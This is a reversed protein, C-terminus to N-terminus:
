KNFANKFREKRLQKFRESVNREYRIYMATLLALIIFLGWFIPNKVVKKYLNNPATLCGQPSTSQKPPQSYPANAGTLNLPQPCDYTAVNNPEYYLVVHCYYNGEPIYPLNVSLYAFNDPLQPLVTSSTAPATIKHAPNTWIQIYGHPHLFKVGDNIEYIYVRNLGALKTFKVGGITLHYKSPGPVTFAVGVDVAAKITVGIAIKHNLDGGTNLPKGNTFQLGALYDGPPLWSPVSLVYPVEITSNAGVTVETPYSNIFCGAVITTTCNGPDTYSDGSYYATIGNVRSVFIVMPSNTYNRVIDALSYNSGPSVTLSAYDTTLGTQMNLAAAGYGPSPISNDAYSYSSFGLSLLFVLGFTLIYFIRQKLYKTM